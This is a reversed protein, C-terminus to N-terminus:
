ASRGCHPCVGRDSGTELYLATVGLRGAIERLARLSPQRRDSEIRSIYGYTVRDLGDTLERQSLGAEERLRKVRAGVTETTRPVVRVIHGDGDSHRLM